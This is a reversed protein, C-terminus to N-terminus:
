GLDNLVTPTWKQLLHALKLPDHFDHPSINPPLYFKLLAVGYFWILNAYTVIFHTLSEIQKAQKAALLESVIKQQLDKPRLDSHLLRMHIHYLNWAACWGDEPNKVEMSIDIKERSELAQPGFEKCGAPVGQYDINLGKLFQGIREDLQEPLYKHWTRNHPEMRFAVKNGRDVVLVNAHCSESVSNPSTEDIALFCLIMPVIVFQHPCTLITQKLSDHVSTLGFNEFASPMKFGVPSPLVSISSQLTQTSYVKGTIWQIANSIQTNGTAICAKRTLFLIALLGLLENAANGFFHNQKLGKRFHDLAEPTFGLFNNSPTYVKLFQNLGPDNALLKTPNSKTEKVDKANKPIPFKWPPLPPPPSRGRRKKVLHAPLPPLPPPKKKSQPSKSRKPSRSQKRKPPM